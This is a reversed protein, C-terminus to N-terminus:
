FPSSGITRRTWTLGQCYRQSRSEWAGILDPKTHDTSIVIREGIHEPKIVSLLTVDLKDEHPLRSYFSAPEKSTESDDVDILVKM